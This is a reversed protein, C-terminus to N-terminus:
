AVFTFLATNVNTFLTKSKIQHNSYGFLTDTVVIHRELVM